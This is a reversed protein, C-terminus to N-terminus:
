RKSGEEAIAWGVNLEVGLLRRKKDLGGAFGGLGGNKGVIRHCPIIIALPNKGTATGAARTAKPVGAREALESYTITEGFPIRAIQRWVEEQFKTGEFHLPVTFEKRKGKLYDEIQRAAEKLVKHKPDLTWKTMDPVHDRGLFYIGTLQKQNAILVLDGLVSTKLITYYTTM